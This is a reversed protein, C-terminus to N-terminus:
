NITVSGLEYVEAALTVNVVMNNKLDVAQTEQKYGVARYQVEYRGPQLQLSYVGEVNASAGKTTNKIYISAFPVANGNKDTVKGSINVQQAFASFCFSCILLFLLTHRM